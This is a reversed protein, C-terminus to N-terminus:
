MECKERALSNHFQLLITAFNKKKFFAFNKCFLKETKSSVRITYRCDSNGNPPVPLVEPEEETCNKDKIMPTNTIPYPSNTLPTESMSYAETVATTITTELGYTSNKEMNSSNKGDM